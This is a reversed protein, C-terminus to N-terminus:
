RCQSAAPLRLVEHTIKETGKTDRAIIMMYQDDTYCMDRYAVRATVKVGEPTKEYAVNKFDVKAKQHAAMPLTQRVMDRVQVANLNQSSLQGDPMTVHVEYRVSDAYMEALSTDYADGKRVFETFFAQAKSLTDDAAAPLFFGASVCLGFVFSLHKRVM